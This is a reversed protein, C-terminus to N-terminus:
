GLPHPYSNPFEGGLEVNSYRSAFNATGGGLFPEAEDGHILSLEPSIVRVVSLGASRVDPLTLDRYYLRVGAKKLRGLLNEILETLCGPFHMDHMDHKDHNSDITTRETLCGPFHKDHNDHNDNITTRTSLAAQSQEIGRDGFQKDTYPSRRKMIPTEPWKEPYLSYYVAHADFSNVAAADEFKLFPHHLSYFGAFICGQIWEAYAKEIASEATARCAVGMSIRMQSRLPLSGCVAIVPHPNWEQTLDFCHVDGCHARVPEIFREELEIERGGLSNQWYVTLADRELLEQIALLLAVYTDTHAAVGTSTSPFAAEGKRPGFGILEQPVWVPSNDYVSFVTGYYVEDLDPPKWRFLPDKYQQESFLSFERYDIVTKDTLESYRKVSFDALAASYRELSEGVASM